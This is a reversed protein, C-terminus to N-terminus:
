LRAAVLWKGLVQETKEIYVRDEDYQAKLLVEAQAVISDVQEVIFPLAIQRAVDDCGYGVDITM